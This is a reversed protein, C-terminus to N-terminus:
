NLRQSQIKRKLEELIKNVDIEISDKFDPVKIHNLSFDRYESKSDPDSMLMHKSQVAFENNNDILVYPRMYYDDSIKEIDDESFFEKKGMRTESLSSILGKIKGFCPFRESVENGKLFQFLAQANAKKSATLIYVDGLDSAGNILDCINPRIMFNVLGSYYQNDKSSNFHSILREAKEFKESRRGSIEEGDQLMREKRELSKNAARVKSILMNLDVDRVLITDDMDLFILPRLSSRKLIKFMEKEISM